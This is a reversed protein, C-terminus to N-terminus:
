SMAPLPLGHQSEMNGREAHSMQPMRRVLESSFVSLMLLVIIM